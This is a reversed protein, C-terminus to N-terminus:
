QEHAAPPALLWPVVLMLGLVIWWFPGMFPGKLADNFSAMAAVAALMAVLTVVATREADGAASRQVWPWVRRVAVVVIAIVAFLGLWGMRQVYHVFDNHPGTVDFLGGGAGVRFDYRQDRWVFRTPEGFGVGFLPHHVSEELNHQWIDLRWRVNESEGDNRNEVIGSIERLAQQEPAQVAGGGGGGSATPEDAGVTGAEGLPISLAATATIAVVVVGGSVLRRGAPALAAAVVAAAIVALWASRRQEVAILTLAAFGAAILWPSTRIRQTLRVGVWVVLLTLYLTLAPAPSARDLAWIADGVWIDPISLLVSAVGGGAIAGLVWHLRRRTDAVLAILPILLSYEAMAVDYSVLKLSYDALGRLLAYAGIVWFVLLPIWPLRERLLAWSERIGHRAVTAVAILVLVVETVYINADDAGLKTFPRGFAGLAVLLGVLLAVDAYERVLRLVNQPSRVAARPTANSTATM